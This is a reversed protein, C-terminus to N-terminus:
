ASDTVQYKRGPHVLKNSIIPSTSFGFAKRKPTIKRVLNEGPYKRPPHLRPVSVPHQLFRHKKSKVECFNNEGNYKNFFFFIEQEVISFFIVLHIPSEKKWSTTFSNEVNNINSKEIKKRLLIVSFLYCNGIKFIVPLSYQFREKSFDKM